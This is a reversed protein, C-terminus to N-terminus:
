GNRPDVSRRLMKKDLKGVSTKPLEPLFRIVDPVGFKSLRGADVHAQLQSRIGAEVEAQSAAAALCVFAWPREGWKPDAVGIVACEAVAPHERIRAEMELSSVWEGGSKIIDKLRDVIRIAGDSDFAVVDNTHLRGGSWLRDTAQTDRYYGATLWPAQALLEGQVAPDRPDAVEGADTQLRLDVLPIPQGARCLRGVSDPNGSYADVDLRSFSLVPCTESMGYGAFVQLGVDMARRALAPALSSGGIMLKWGPLRLGHKAASDLIMQLVTPVCHSFTVQEDVVLKLLGDANYRGAYVQKLGLMTALYPMGWAHVHFMPTLPMYVDGIRLSQRSDACGLAVGLALTHVVLQRHSYFVGKPLGTTGTTYFLTAIEDERVEPFAFAADEANLLQEYEGVYGESLSASLTEGAGIVLLRVHRKVEAQVKELVPLFEAASVVLDAGSHAITYGIQDPALRVNVTVLTAGLMPVAFYAELYRHEDWDLIAIKAGRSVGLRSLAEGLKHVRAEFACYSLRLGGSTVIERPGAARVGTALMSAITLGSPGLSSTFM